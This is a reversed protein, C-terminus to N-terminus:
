AAKEAFVRDFLHGLTAADAMSMPLLPARVTLWASDGTTHSVLAKVAPTVPHNLVADVLEVLAADDRGQHVVTRMRGPVLNAMGSIAGQGGDRVARALVREDGILVTLDHRHAALLERSYGWDGASDKVGAIAQPFAAKLRGILAISLPVATVSPIHYLIIDRARDGLATIFSSFWAFLGDDSVGKFYFPPAVLLARADADLLQNAQTLAEHLSAAIVGGVVHNRFDIGAGKLAGIMQDRAVPGLLPGEGTTGFLTVSDCGNALCWAVHRTLRALDVSGDDFFPTTLACSLGFRGTSQNM